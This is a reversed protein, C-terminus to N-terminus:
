QHGWWHELATPLDLAPHQELCSWIVARDRDSLWCLYCGLTVGAAFLEEPPIMDFKNSLRPTWPPTDEPDYRIWPGTDEPWLDKSMRRAIM